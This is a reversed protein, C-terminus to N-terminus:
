VSYFPRLGQVASPFEPWEDTSGRVDSGCVARAASRISVRTIDWFFGAVAQLQTCNDAIMQLLTCDDAIAQLGMSVFPGSRVHRDPGVHQRSGAMWNYQRM